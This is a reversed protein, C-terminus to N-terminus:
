DSKSRRMFSAIGCHPCQIYIADFIHIVLGPKREVDMGCKPCVYTGSGRRAMLCYVVVLVIVIIEVISSAHM